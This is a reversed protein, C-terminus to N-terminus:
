MNRERSSSTIECIVSKTFLRGALRQFDVAPDAICTLFIRRNISQIERAQNTPNGYKHNKAGIEVEGTANVPVKAVSQM